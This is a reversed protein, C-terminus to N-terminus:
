ALAAGPADVAVERVAAGDRRYCRLEAGQGGPGVITQLCHPWWGAVDRQSPTPPGDPHSHAFGLFAHGRGRLQAEAAAFDAAAVTFADAGASGAPLAVFAAVRWSAGDRRGGLLGVFERPAAARLARALAGAVAAPFVATEPEPRASMGRPYGPASRLAAAAIRERADGHSVM